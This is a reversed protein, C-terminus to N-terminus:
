LKWLFLRVVFKFSIDKTNKLM